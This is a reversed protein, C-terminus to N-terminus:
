PPPKFDTILLCVDDEHSSSLMDRLIAECARTADDRERTQEALIMLHTLGIEFDVGRREVLGDTFMLLRDGPELRLRHENREDPAADTWGIPPGPRGRLHASSGDRRVVIPNPHGASAWTAEGTHPDIEVCIITAFADPDQSAILRSLRALSDSLGFSDFLHARLVNRMQAMMAAAQLGHGAADGVVLALRGSQLEFADYWDGGVQSGESAARYGAALEVREFSPLVTPLAAAQLASATERQAEVHQADALATSLREGLEHMTQIDADTFPGGPSRIMTLVAVVEGNAQLPMILGPGDGLLQLTRGYAASAASDDLDAIIEEALRALRLPEGSRYAVVGPSPGSFPHPYSGVLRKALADLAPDRHVAAVRVLEDRAPVVLTCWDAMIPIVADALREFVEARTSLGTLRSSLESLFRLRANAQEAETLAVARELEVNRRASVNSLSVNLGYQDPWANVEYWARITPYYEEFFVPRGSEIARRYWMEFKSGAAAPFFELLNAGILEARSAGLAREGEANVATIAFGSDISFFANPMTEILRPLGAPGPEQRMARELALATLGAILDLRRLQDPTFPQLDQWGFGVAGLTLDSESHLPLSVWASPPAGDIGAPLDPHPFSSVIEEAARLLVPRGTRIAECAPAPDGLARTTWRPGAAAQEVEHVVTAGEERVAMSALYGGAAAGGERALAEAVASPTESSALAMALRWIATEEVATGTEPHDADTM